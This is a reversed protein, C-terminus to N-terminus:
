GMEMLGDSWVLGVHWAGVVLHMPLCVVLQLFGDDVSPLCAHHSNAYSSVVSWQVIGAFRRCTHPHGDTRRATRETGSAVDQIWIVAV